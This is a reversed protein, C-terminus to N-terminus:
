ALLKIAQDKLDVKRVKGSATQPFDNVLFVHQPTMFRGLHDSIFTKIEECDIKGHHHHPIIFAAVSEGYKTDPVGVVAAQSVEPHTFLANEIELPHINEGGRIILDKIRGTVTLYGENDIVGEDGTKMWTKEQGTEPDKRSIMVQASNEPDKFYGRQVLYGSVVIEGKEGLPLPHELKEDQPNVIMAETNPMVKGVTAVRKEIPDTTTSMFSVPSTETMGYCITLDTLHFVDVLKHMMEVPVPSGAAIGKRLYQLGPDTHQEQNKGAEAMQDAHLELEAAYMTPVGQIGTCKYSRIADLTAQPDFSESPYVLATGHSLAAMNSLVLGFCHFMPVPVCLHDQGSPHNSNTASLGMRNGIFMGNNVVNRHTLESLKPASTTGSTFQMNIVNDPDTDFKFLSNLSSPGGYDLLKDFSNEDQSNGIIFVSSDNAKAATILGSLDRDRSRNRKVIKETTLVAKCEAHVMASEFQKDTFATNLPVLIAGLKGLAAQLVPYEWRNGCCVAVRDGKGVNVLDSLNRAVITSLRDLEAFTLSVNQHHSIVAPKTGHKECISTLLTGTTHDSVPPSSPGKVHSQGPTCIWTSQCRKIVRGVIPLIRKKSTCTITNIM